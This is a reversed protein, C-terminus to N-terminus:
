LDGRLGDAASKRDSTDLPTIGARKMRALGATDLGSTMGSDQAWLGWALSTAPHGAAHRRTALADLFANAAAYNGQGPSGLIGAASSFLVFAALNLARTLEDLHVAADAKPAFVTDLRAPNLATIIGDDLVGATHIVATLPADAPVSALLQRVQDRDAVDCAIIQVRTGSQELESQLGAAGDADPGRRSALLLSAIGHATALHRPVAGGLTGTGGTILVTGAPNLTRPIALVNKGIHRGQAMQRFAEPAQRIDRVTLPTSQLSGASFLDLLHALMRGIMAPEAQHLDYARYSVGPYAAAIDQAARIDTKGMELFQGGRPLLRLSADILNGALSNLIVDMGRGGTAHLFAPEFEATRSTAIHDDALGLDRLPQHKAPSATAYVDAGRYRAIQIAAQGVGGTGAHVLVRQGPRLDALDILGYYATLFAVPMAAAQEFSWQPPVPALLEADAVALPAFAREFVGMVRDGPALGTVGPGVERIVGAGEDGLYPTGFAM